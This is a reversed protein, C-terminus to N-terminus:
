ITKTTPLECYNFIRRRSETTESTKKQEKKEEAEQQKAKKDEKQKEKLQQRLARKYDVNKKNNQPENVLNKECLHLLLSDSLLQATVKSPSLENNVEELSQRLKSQQWAGLDSNHGEIGSKWGLVRGNESLIAITKM